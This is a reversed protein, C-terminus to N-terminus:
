LGAVARNIGQAVDNAIGRGVMHVFAAMDIFTGFVEGDETALRTLREIGGVIDGFATSGAKPAVQFLVAAVTIQSTDTVEAVGVGDLLVALFDFFTQRRDHHASSIVGARGQYSPIPVALLECLTPEEVTVLAGFELVFAVLPDDLFRTRPAIEGTLAVVGKYYGVNVAVTPVLYDVTRAGDVM